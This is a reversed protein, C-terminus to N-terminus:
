CCLRYCLFLHVFACCFDLTWAPNLGQVGLLFGLIMVLTSFLNERGFNNPLTNLDPHFWAHLLPERLLSM